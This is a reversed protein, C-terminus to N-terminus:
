HASIREINRSSRMVWLLRRTEVGTVFALMAYCTLQKTLTLDFITNHRTQKAQQHKNHGTESKSLQNHVGFPCRGPNNFSHTRTETLRLQKANIHKCSLMGFKQGNRQAWLRNVQHQIMTRVHITKVYNSPHPSILKCREDRLSRYALVSKLQCPIVKTHNAHTHTHGRSGKVVRAMGLRKETSKRM